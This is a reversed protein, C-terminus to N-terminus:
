VLSVFSSPWLSPLTSAQTGEHEAGKAVELAFAISQLFTTNTGVFLEGIGTNFAVTWALVLPV